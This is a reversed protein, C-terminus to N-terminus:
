IVYLAYILINYYIITAWSVYTRGPSPKENGEPWVSRALQKAAQDGASRFRVEQSNLSTNNKLIHPEFM